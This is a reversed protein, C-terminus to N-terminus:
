AKKLFRLCVTFDKTWVHPKAYLSLIKCPRIWPSPAPPACGGRGGSIVQLKRICSTNQLFYIYIYIYIHNVPTSTSCSVLAGGGLFFKPDAGTKCEMCALVSSHLTRCRHHNLDRIRQLLLKSALRPPATINQRRWCGEVIGTTM